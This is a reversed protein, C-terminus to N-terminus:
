FIYLPIVATALVLLSPLLLRHYVQAFDAGFYERTLVLCLHVPSLMVGAFGSAFAFAVLGPEPSMGGMLPLLFPFTIGVFAITLGTM